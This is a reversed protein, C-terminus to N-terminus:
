SYYISRVFNTLTGIGSIKVQVEDGLSMPGIGGPTGTAIIDGPLLTMVKSIFSILQSVNFILNGTNSNQRIEGNLTTQIKLNGPDVDTEICPGIPAFTDFGKGRTFQVDKAQLDRATVDNICTYGFIYNKTDEEEVMSAVRGIVVALEGEYDVRRSMHSPYIVDEKHAIVTTNPKLFLMPEKPLARKMERAHDEYNLGVAIIKTPKCPPLIKVKDFNYIKGNEHYKSYIDGSIERITKDDLIGTKEESNEDLFRATKM